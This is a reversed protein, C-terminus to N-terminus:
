MLSLICSLSGRHCEEVVTGWVRDLIITVETTSKCGSLRDTRFSTPASQPLQAYIYQAEAERVKDKHQGEAGGTVISILQTKSAKFMIM